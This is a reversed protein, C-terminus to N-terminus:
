DEWEQMYFDLVDLISNYTRSLQEMMNRPDVWRVETIGEEEQPRLKGKGDHQMLYWNTKKLIRVKQVTVYTHYTPRLKQVIVLPKVGTEEEVERLATRQMQEGAEAKGKPLDWMGHRHILLIQRHQNMVVGGAARILRYASFLTQRIQRADEGIITLSRVYNGTEALAFAKRIKDRETFFYVPRHEDITEPLDSPNGELITVPIENVFIKYIQAMSRLAEAAESKAAFSSCICAILSWGSLGNVHAEPHYEGM